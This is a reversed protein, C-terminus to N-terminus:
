FIGTERFSSLTFCFPSPNTIIKNYVQEEYFDGAEVMKGRSRIRPNKLPSILRLNIKGTRKMEFWRTINHALEHEITKQAINVNLRLLKEQIYLICGTPSSLGFLLNM